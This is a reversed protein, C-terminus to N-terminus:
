NTTSETVIELAQPLREDLAPLVVAHEKAFALLQVTLNAIECDFWCV